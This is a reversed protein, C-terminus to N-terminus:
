MNSGGRSWYDADLLINDPCYKITHARDGTAGCLHCRFARLVPCKVRGRGDKLCHSSYWSVPEGKNKCFSCELQKQLVQRQRRMTHTFHMLMELQQPTLSLLAEEQKMVMAKFDLKSQANTDKAVEADSPINPTTSYKQLVPEPTANVTVQAELVAPDLKVASLADSKRGFIAALNSSGSDHTPTYTPIYDKPSTDPTGIITTVDM